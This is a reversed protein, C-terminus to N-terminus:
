PVSPPHPRVGVTCTSRCCSFVFFFVVFERVRRGGPERVVGPAFYVGGCDVAVCVLVVFEAHNEPASGFLLPFGLPANLSAIGKRRCGGGAGRTSM